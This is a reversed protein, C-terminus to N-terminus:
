KECVNECMSQCMVKRKEKGKPKEDAHVDCKGSMPMIFAHPCYNTRFVPPLVTVVHRPLRMTHDYLQLVSQLTISSFSAHVEAALYLYFLGM